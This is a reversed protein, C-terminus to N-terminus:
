QGSDLLHPQEFAAIVKPSRWLILFCVPLICNLLWGIFTGITQAAGIVPGVASAAQPNIQLQMQRTYRAAVPNVWVLAIVLHITSLVIVIISWRIMMRRAWPRLKLGGIGGALLMGLLGLSIVGAVATYAAVATDNMPPATPMFPNRGGMALAALQFVLGFAGCLLGLSGFVIAVISMVSISGPRAPMPAAYQPVYGLPANPENPELPPLESM